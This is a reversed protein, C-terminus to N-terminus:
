GVFIEVADNMAELDIPRKSALKKLERGLREMGRIDKKTLGFRAELHSLFEQEKQDMHGDAYAAMIAYQLVVKRDEHDLRTRLGDVDQTRADGLAEALDEESLSFREALTRLLKREEAQLEGDCLSMALVGQLIGKILQEM